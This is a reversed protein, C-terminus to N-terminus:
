TLYFCSILDYHTIRCLRLNYLKIDIVVYLIKKSSWGILAVDVRVLTNVVAFSNAVTVIIKAASWPKFM